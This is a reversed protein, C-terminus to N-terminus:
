QETEETFEDAHVFETIDVGQEELWKLAKEADDPWLGIIRIGPGSMGGRVASYIKNEFMWDTFKFCIEDPDRPM